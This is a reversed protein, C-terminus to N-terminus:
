MELPWGIWMGCGGGGGGLDHGDVKKSEDLGEEAIGMEKEIVDGLKLQEGIVGEIDDWRTLPNALVVRFVDVCRKKEMKKVCERGEEEEVKMEVKTRSVFGFVGERAQREQIRRTIESVKEDEEYSMSTGPGMGGCAKHRLKRPIYRYLLINTAPGGQHPAPLTQFARSPHTSLRTAMQRTLTASRTLLANLGDRGLLHLTAHLHLSTAPRSGELTFKGLDPSDKFFHHM